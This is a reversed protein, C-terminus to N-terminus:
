GARTESDDFGLVRGVLVVAHEIYEHAASIDALQVIDKAWAGVSGSIATAIANTATESQGDALLVANRKTWADGWQRSVTSFGSPTEGDALVRSVDRDEWVGELYARTGALFLRRPETVGAGKVAHLADRVRKDQRQVYDEHMALFIESKNAFHYYLSGVSIGALQTIEVVSTAEYGKQTFLTRAAAMLADRSQSRGARSGKQPKKGDLTGAGEEPRRSRGPADARANTLKAM